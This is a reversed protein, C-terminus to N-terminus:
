QDIEPSVSCTQGDEFCVAFTGKGSPQLWQGRVQTGNQPLMEEETCGAVRNINHPVEKGLNADWVWADFTIPCQAGSGTCKRMKALPCATSGTFQRECALRQPHGDPAVPGESRGAACAEPWNMEKSCYYDKGFRAKPTFQFGRGYPSIGWQPATAQKYFPTGLTCSAEPTPTPSPTPTPTPAPTPTPTPEPTSTPTPIPTPTPTPAPCAGLKFAEQCAPIQPTLKCQACLKNCGVLLMGAGVVVALYKFLRM